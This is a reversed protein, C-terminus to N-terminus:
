GFSFRLWCSFSNQSRQVGAQLDLAASLFSRTVYNKAARAGGLGGGQGGGPRRCWAALGKLYLQKIKWYKESAKHPQSKLAAPTPSPPPTLYDLPEASM